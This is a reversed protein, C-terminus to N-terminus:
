RERPLLIVLELRPDPFDSPVYVAFNRARAISDWDAGSKEIQFYQYDLKVPIASPPNPAHRLTVGPLAQRILRSVQDGSSVKFLHPVKRLLEEVKMTAAVALYLQPAAIWRDQEIATALIGPEVQTLPLAVHNAPVVTELLERVLADLRTFCGGLDMHDYEPFARPHISTSFTTLAGGLAVMAAYLEAPHGRKTEYLHRFRPLHTNVTYLLWFNAIDAVGFDALGQGRQRRAGSLSASRAALIEVLRRAIALLAESAPIALLPPVFQPDIQFEGTAARTLRAAPLVANGEVPEADTLFRFNKRAIQIPKEGLGTNEDRRLSVESLYRTGRDAPVMSVNRGDARHEPIGLFIDLSTRDGSWEDELPRPPPLPDAGPMDFSLGDPMLGAASALAFSGAALAERDVELRSFGWPFFSLASLQFALQEELFRDQAQLHQPSLLVGKTWLPKQMSRM